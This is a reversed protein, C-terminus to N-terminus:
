LDRQWEFSAIKRVHVIISFMIKVLSDKLGQFKMMLTVKIKRTDLTIKTIMIIISHILDEGLNILIREEFRTHVIKPDFIKMKFKLM